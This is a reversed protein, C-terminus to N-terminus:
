SVTIELLLRGSQEMEIEFRGPILADFELTTDGVDPEVYLDYGHVHVQETREGTVVVSVRDGLTVDQRWIDRVPEGDAFEILVESGTPSSPTGTSSTTDDGGGCAAALMVLVIAVILRRTM